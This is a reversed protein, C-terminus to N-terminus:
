QEIHYWRFQTNSSIWVQGTQYHYRVWVLAQQNIIATIILANANWCLVPSVWAAARAPPLMISVACSIVNSDVATYIAVPKSKGEVPWFVMTTVLACMWTWSPCSLAGVSTTVTPTTTTFMLISKGIVRMHAPKLFAKPLLSVTSHRWFLSVSSLSSWQSSLAPPSWTQLLPIFILLDLSTICLVGSVISPELHCTNYVKQCPASSSCWKRFNRTLSQRGAVKRLGPGGRYKSDDRVELVENPIFNYAVIFFLEAGHHYTQLKCPVSFWSWIMRASWNPWKCLADEDAFARGEQTRGHVQSHDSLWLLCRWFVSNLRRILRCEWAHKRDIHILIRLEGCRM